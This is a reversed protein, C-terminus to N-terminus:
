AKAISMTLTNDTIIREVLANSDGTFGNITVIIDNEEIMKSKNRKNWEAVLGKKEVKRVHLCVGDGVDVDMGLKKGKSKTFTAVFDPSRPAAAQTAGDGAAQKADAPGIGENLLSRHAAELVSGKALLAEVKNLVAETKGENSRSQKLVAESEESAKTQDAALERQVGAPAPEGSSSASGHGDIETVEPTKGPSSASGPADVVVVEPANLLEPFEAGEQPSLDPDPLPELAQMDAPEPVQFVDAERDPPAASERNDSSDPVPSQSEDLHRSLKELNQWPMEEEQRASEYDSKWEQRAAGESSKDGKWCPGEESNCASDCGARQALTQTTVNGM